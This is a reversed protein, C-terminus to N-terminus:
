RRGAIRGVASRIAKREAALSSVSYLVQGEGLIDLHHMAAALSSVSYLVQGEGLIDLHHM